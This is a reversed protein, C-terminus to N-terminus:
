LLSGVGGDTRQIVKGETKLIQAKEIMEEKGSNEVERRAREWKRWM